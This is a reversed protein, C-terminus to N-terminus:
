IIPVTAVVVLSLIFAGIIIASWTSEFELSAWTTIVATLIQVILIRVWIVGLLVIRGSSVGVATTGFIIIVTLLAVIAFKSFIAFLMSFTKQYRSPWERRTLLLGRIWSAEVLLFPVTLIMLIITNVFRIGNPWKILVLIIGPQIFGANEALSLWILLWAIGVGSSILSKLIDYIHYKNRFSEIGVSSISKRTEKQGITLLMIILLVFPALVLFLIYGTISMLNLCSMGIDELNLGVLSAGVFTIVTFAGLLSSIGFTRQLSYSQIDMPIRRPKLKEPLLINVLWMVPIVSVLIFISGSIMAINKGFYVQETPNRTYLIQEEGQVGKVLWSVTENVLFSDVVEFVHNSPGFVLRYATGNDLSGYTVGAIASDNGTAVRIANIADQNSVIEDFSGVAFLLNQPFEVFEDQNLKGVDGIAAYAEPPIVFDKLEIAVRFGLSHTLVGYSENDVSTYTTQIYRVAAYADQAMTTFDTIDFALNSDGHGPLDISVVTFNRRALEVNFAYLGEKSGTLGHITLIAPMPEYHNATRPSFVLFEVTRGPSSEISMQEVSVEGLGRDVAWSVYFSSAILISLILITFYLPPREMFNVTEISDFGARKTM